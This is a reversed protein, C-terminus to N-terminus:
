ERTKLKHMFDGLFTLENKSLERTTFLVIIFSLLGIVVSCITGLLAAHIMKIMVKQSIFMAISALLINIISRWPVHWALEKRVFLVASCFYVIYAFFCSIGAGLFGIKPILIINMSINAAGAIFSTVAIKISKQKLELGKQVYQSLGLFYLGSAIFPIVQAGTSFEDAALLLLMQKPLAVLTVWLPTILLLYYRSMASILIQTSSSDKKEWNEIIIPYAALMLTMFTFQMTKEPISYGLGYLGVQESGKFIEILYRDSLTLIWLSFNSIMMPMGYGAFIKIIRSSILKIRVQSYLHLDYFLFFLMALPALFFGWFLGEAKMGAFLMLAVGIVPKGMVYLSWYLSYKKPQFSSRFLNIIIEFVTIVISALITIRLLGVLQHELRNRFFVFLVAIAIAALLAASAWSAYFLSSLFPAEQNEKKYKPYFRIASSSLWIVSFVKILGITSLAINYQGYEKPSLLTTFVRLLAIGLIAPIIMSPLYILADKATRKLLTNTNLAQKL